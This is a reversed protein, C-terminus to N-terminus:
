DSDSNLFYNKAQPLAPLFTGEGLLLFSRFLQMFEILLLLGGPGGGFLYNFLQRQKQGLLPHQWQIHSCDVLSVKTGLSEMM